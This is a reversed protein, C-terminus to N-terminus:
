NNGLKIKSLMNEMYLSVAEFNRDRVIYILDEWYLLIFPLNRFEQTKAFQVLKSVNAGPKVIKKGNMWKTKSILLVQVGNIESNKSLHKIRERNSLIDKEFNWDEYLKAEIAVFGNPSSILIDAVEGHEKEIHHDFDVHVNEKQVFEKFNRLSEIVKQDPEELLGFETHMDSYAKELQDFFAKTLSGYQPILENFICGGLVKFYFNREKQSETISGRTDFLM